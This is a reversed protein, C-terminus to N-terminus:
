EDDGARDPDYDPSSRIPHFGTQDYYGQAVNRRRTSNRRRPQAQSDDSGSTAVQYVIFGIVLWAWPNAMLWTWISSLDFGGTPLSGPGADAPGTPLSWPPACDGIGLVKGNSKKTGELGTVTVGEWNPKSEYM